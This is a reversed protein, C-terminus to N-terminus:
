KELEKKLKNQIDEFLEKEKKKKEETFAKVKDELASKSNETFNSIEEAMKNSSVERPLSEIKVHDSILFVTSDFAGDVIDIIGEDRLKAAIYSVKDINMGTLECIDSHGPSGKKIFGFLRVAAVFIHAEDYFSIKKM